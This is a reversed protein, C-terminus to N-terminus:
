RSTSPLLCYHRGVNQQSMICCRDSCVKSPMCNTLAPPASLHNLSTRGLIALMGAFPEGTFLPFPSGGLLAALGVGTSSRRPTSSRSLGSAALLAAASPSPSLAARDHAKQAPASPTTDLELDESFLDPFPLGAQQQHASVLQAEATSENSQPASQATTIITGDDGTQDSSNFASGAPASEHPASEARAAGQPASEHGEADLEEATSPLHDAHRRSSRREALVEPTPSQGLTAFGPRVTSIRGPPSSSHSRARTRITMPASGPSEPRSGASRSSAHSGARAIIAPPSSASPSLLAEPASSRNHALDIHMQLEPHMGPASHSSPEDTPSPSSPQQEDDSGSSSDDDEAFAPMAQFHKRSTTLIEALLMRLVRLVAQVHVLAKMDLM